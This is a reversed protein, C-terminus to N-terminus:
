LRPAPSALRRAAWFWRRVVTVLVLAAMTLFLEALLSPFLLFAAYFLITETGEVLGPPMTVSTPEAAASAGLARKELAAALYMWSAANLYFSALLVAVSFWLLSDADRGLVLAIPIAAYVAFDLLIDLYGGSDSQEGTLRAVLGDLGDFVRNVLWLLFALAYTARFSAYVCGAGAAFGLLTLADPSVRGALRRALPELLRDKVVRTSRDLM